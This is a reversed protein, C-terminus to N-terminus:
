KESYEQVAYTIALKENDSMLHNMKRYIDELLKAMEKNEM